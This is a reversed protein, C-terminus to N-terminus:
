RSRRTGCRADRAPSSRRPQRAATGTVRGALRGLAVIHASSPRKWLKPTLSAWAHDLSGDADGDAGDDAEGKHATLNWGQSSSFQANYVVPAGASSDLAQQTTSLVFSLYQQEANPDGPNAPIQLWVRAGEQWPAITGQATTAAQDSSLGTDLIPLHWNGFDKGAGVVSPELVRTLALDHGGLSYVQDTARQSEISKVATDVVIRSEIETTRGVLDWASLRLSYIGNYFQAPDLSLLNLNALTDTALTEQLVLTQWAGSNAPAIELMYGM